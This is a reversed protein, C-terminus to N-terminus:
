YGRIAREACQDLFDETVNEMWSIVGFRRVPRGNYYAWHLNFSEFGLRLDDLSPPENKFYLCPRRRREAVNVCPWDRGVFVEQGDNTGGFLLAYM